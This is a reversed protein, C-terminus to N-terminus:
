NTEMATDELNTLYKGTRVLKRLKFLLIIGIISVITIIQGIGILQALEAWIFMPILLGVALAFKHRRNNRPPMYRNIAAMILLNGLIFLISELLPPIRPSGSPSAPLFANICYLTFVLAGLLYFKRTGEDPLGRGGLWKGPLKFAIFVLVASLILFFLYDGATPIANGRLSNTVLNLVLVDLIYTVLVAGTGKKGLLPEKSYKPYATSLLLLPLGISFVAHFVSIGLAWIWDVGLFRGYISLIGPPSGSPIFFTHVSIGEEMIGYALGLTLISAWGKQFKISFERILLAGCSYLAINFVLGIFFMPPNFLLYGVNSSGTMYEPIGPTMIILLLVM